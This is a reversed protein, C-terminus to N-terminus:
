GSPIGLIGLVHWGLRLFSDSSSAADMWEVNVAREVVDNSRDTIGVRRDFVAFTARRASVGPSFTSLFRTSASALSAQIM